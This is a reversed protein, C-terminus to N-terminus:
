DAKKLVKVGMARFREHYLWQVEVRSGIKLGSFIKLIKKDLGGGKAPAGGIWQPMYKRGKEEGDARVEIFNPGKSVLTGIATGKKGELPNKEKKKKDQALAASEGTTLVGLALGLTLVTTLTGLALRQLTM